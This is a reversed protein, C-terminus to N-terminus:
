RLRLISASYAELFRRIVDALKSFFRASANRLNFASNGFILPSHDPHVAQRFSSRLGGSFPFDLTRAFCCHKTSRHFGDGAVILEM